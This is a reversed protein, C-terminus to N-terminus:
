NVGFIHWIGSERVPRCNFCIAAADCITLNLVYGDVSVSLPKEQFVGAKALDILSGSPLKLLDKEYIPAKFAVYLKKV